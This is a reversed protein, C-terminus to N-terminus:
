IDTEGWYFTLQMLAPIETLSIGFPVLKFQISLALGWSIYFTFDSPCFPVLWSLIYPDPYELCFFHCICLDLDLLLKYLCVSLLFFAWPSPSYPVLPLTNLLSSHPTFYLELAEPLPPHWPWLGPPLLTLNLIEISIVFSFSGLDRGFPRLQGNWAEGSPERSININTWILKSCCPNFPLM